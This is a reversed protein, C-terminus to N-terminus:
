TGTCPEGPEGGVWWGRVSPLRERSMVTDRPMARAAPRDPSSVPRRRRATSAAM